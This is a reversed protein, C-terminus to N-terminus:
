FENGFDSLDGGDEVLRRLQLSFYKSSSLYGHLCLVKLRKKEQYSYKDDRTSAHVNSSARIQVSRSRGIRQAAITQGLSSCRLLISAFLLMWFDARKTPGFFKMDYHYRWFPQVIRQRPHSLQLANEFYGRIYTLIGRVYLVLVSLSM